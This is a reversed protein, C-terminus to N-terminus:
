FRNMFIAFCVFWIIIIIIGITMSLYFTGKLKSDSTNKEKHM